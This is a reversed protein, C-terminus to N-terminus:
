QTRAIKGALYLGNGGTLLMVMQDSIDPLSPHPVSMDAHLATFAYSLIVVPFIAMSLAREPAVSTDSKNTRRGPRKTILFGTTDIDGRLIRGAILAAFLVFWIILGASLFRTVLDM